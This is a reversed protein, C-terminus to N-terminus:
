LTHLKPQAPSVTTNQNMASSHQAPAHPALPQVRATLVLLGPPPQRTNVMQQLQLLILLLTHAPQSAEV